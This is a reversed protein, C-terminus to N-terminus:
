SQPVPVSSLSRLKQFGVYVSQSCGKNGELLFDGQNDPLGHFCVSIPRTKDLIEGFGGLVSYGKNWVM